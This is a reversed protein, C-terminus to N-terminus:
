YDGRMKFDVDAFGGNEPNYTDKGADIYNHGDVMAYGAYGWESVGATM